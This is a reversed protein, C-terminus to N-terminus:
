AAPQEAEAQTSAAPEPVSQLTVEAEGTGQESAVKIKVMAKEAQSEGAAV